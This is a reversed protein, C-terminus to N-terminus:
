VQTDALPLTLTFIAGGEPHNDASITGNMAQALRKVIYLGLGHGYTKRSDRSDTRYFPDFILAKEQQDFGPGQDQVTIVMQKEGAKAKVSIVGAPAYKLANDLLHFLISGLAKEDAFVAPLDKADEWSIREAGPRHALSQSVTRFISNLALPTPYLPLKGADLASLDLITEVFHSLREIEAQILRFKERVAEPVQNSSNLLQMGASINTLPARLEHSVLSVFDSKLQDLQQLEINQKELQQLATTLSTTKEAVRAELSRNLEQLENRAKDVQKLAQQLAQQQKKQLSLDHATGALWQKSRTGVFLPRLSLFVPLTRKDATILEIEGSFGAAPSSLGEKLVQAAQKSGFLIEMPQGLLDAPGAYGSASLLAPNVLQFRGSADCFFAPEAVGNVLSTYQEYEIEGARLSQRAILLLGLVVTAWLPLTDGQQLIQWNFFAYVGVTFVATVPLSGQLREAFALLRSGEKLGTFAPASRDVTRGALYFGAAAMMWGAGLSGAPQFNGQLRQLSYVVDTIAFASYSVTIWGLAPSLNTPRTALFINALITLVFFDMLPILYAGWDPPPLRQALPLAPQILVGWILTVAAASIILLELRLRLWGESRVSFPTVQRITHPHLLLGVTITLHGSITLLDSWRQIDVGTITDRAPFERLLVALFLFVFGFILCRWALIFRLDAIRSSAFWNYVAALAFPILGLLWGVWQGAPISQPITWKFILIMLFIIAYPALRQTKMPNIKDLELGALHRNAM